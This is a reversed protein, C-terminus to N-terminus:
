IPKNGMIGEEGFPMGEYAEPDFAYVDRAFAEDDDYSVTKAHYKDYKKQAREYDRNLEKVMEVQDEDIEIMMYKHYDYQYKVTVKM